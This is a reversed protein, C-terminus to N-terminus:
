GTEPCQGVVPDSVELFLGSNPCQGVIPKLCGIFLGELIRLKIKLNVENEGIGCFYYKNFEPMEGGFM